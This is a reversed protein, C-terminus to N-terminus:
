TEEEMLASQSKIQIFGFTILSTNISFFEEEAEDEYQSQRNYIPYYGNDVDCTDCKTDDDDNSSVSCTKCHSHCSVSPTSSICNAPATGDLVYGARCSDCLQNTSTADQNQYSCTMCNYACTFIKMTCENSSKNTNSNGYFIVTDLKGYDIPTYTITELLYPTDREIVSSNSSLKFTGHYNGSPDAKLVFGLRRITETFTLNPKVYTSMDISLVEDSAVTKIPTDTCQSLYPFTFKYLYSIGGVDDTKCLKDAYAPAYTRTYNKIDFGSTQTRTDNNSWMWFSNTKFEEPGWTM